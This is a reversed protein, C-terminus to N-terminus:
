RASFFFALSSGLMTMCGNAMWGAEAEERRGCLGPRVGVGEGAFEVGRVAAAALEAETRRETMSLTGLLM